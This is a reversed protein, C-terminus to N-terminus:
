SVGGDDSSAYTAVGLTQGTVHILYQKASNGTYRGSATAFIDEWFGNKHFLVPPFIQPVTNEVLGDGFARNFFFPLPSSVSKAGAILYLTAESQKATDVPVDLKIFLTRGANSPIDGVELDVKGDLVSFSAQADDLFNAQNSPNIIGSSRGRVWGRTVPDQGTPINGNRVTVVIGEATNVPFLGDKNNWLQLEVTESEQGAVIDGFSLSSVTVGSSNYFLLESLAM